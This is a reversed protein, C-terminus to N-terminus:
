TAQLLYVLTFVLLWVLDIFHWFLGLVEVLGTSAKGRLSYVLVFLIYIVGALVHAGHFGTIVYFTSAYSSKGLVLGEKILGPHLIGFYEAYQGLLFLSGLLATAALWASTQRQRGRLSADYALVVTLSSSILIFTLLATFPISLSPEGPHRWTSSGSRLIGYGLLLAFFSFGDSVLFIWMAIKAPSATGLQRDPPWAAAPPQDLVATSTATSM